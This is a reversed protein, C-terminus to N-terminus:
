KVLYLGAGEMSWTCRFAWANGNSNQLLLYDPEGCFAEAETYVEVQTILFGMDKYLPGYGAFLLAEFVYQMDADFGAHEARPLVNCTAEGTPSHQMEKAIVRELAEQLNINM